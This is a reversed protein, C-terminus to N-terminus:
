VGNWNKYWRRFADEVSEDERWECSWGMMGGKWSGAKTGLEINSNCDVVRQIRRFIPLWRTWKPRWERLEGTLRIRAEQKQGGDKTYHVLDVFKALEVEVHNLDAETKDDLLEWWAYHKQKGRPYKNRYYLEGDPYLLDHRVIELRWPWWFVKTHDSNKPDRSSWSGPQIGYHIHIAEGDFSFGYDRRISETYGKRGDKGVTAWSEKSLDVWKERPKFIEPIKIWWSHGFGAIHLQCYPKEWHDREYPNQIGLAFTFWHDRKYYEVRKRM